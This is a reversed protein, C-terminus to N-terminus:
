IWIQFPFMYWHLLCELEKM